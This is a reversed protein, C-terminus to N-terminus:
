LGNNNRDYILRKWLLKYLIDFLVAQLSYFRIICFITKETIKCIAKGLLIFFYYLPFLFPIQANIIWKNVHASKHLLKLKISSDTSTELKASINNTKGVAKLLCSLLHLRHSLTISSLELACTSITKCDIKCLFINQHYFWM